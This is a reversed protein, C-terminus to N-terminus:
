RKTITFKGFAVGLEIGQGKGTLALSVDGKTMASASASKGAAADASGAVYTGMLDNIDAVDSFKGHGDNIKTKGATVGGGRAELKVRAHQGNECTITGSGSSTKYFASWGKMTFSMQCDTAAFAAPAALILLSLMTGITIKKMTNAKEAAVTKGATRGRRGADLFLGQPAVLCQRARYV